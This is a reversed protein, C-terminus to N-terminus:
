AKNMLTTNEEEDDNDDANRRAWFVLKETTHTDGERESLINWKLIHKKIRQMHKKWHTRGNWSYNPIKTLFQRWSSGKKERERM